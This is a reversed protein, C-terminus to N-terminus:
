KRLMKKVIIDVQEQTYTGPMQQIVVVPAPPLCAPLTVGRRAESRAQDVRILIDVIAV